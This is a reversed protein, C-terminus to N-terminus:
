KLEPNKSLFSEREENTLLNNIFANRLSANTELSNPLHDALSKIDLGDEVSVGPLIDKSSFKKVFSNKYFVNVVSGAKDTKAAWNTAMVELNPKEEYTAVIVEGDDTNQIQWLGDISADADRFRVIDFAIKILRHKVDEYKYAKKATLKNDLTKYDEDAFYKM